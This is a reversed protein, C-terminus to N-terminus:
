EGGGEPAYEALADDIAAATTTCLCLSRMERLASILDERQRRVQNFVSQAEDRQFQTVMVQRALSGCETKLREVEAQAEDREHRLQRVKALLAYGEAQEIM